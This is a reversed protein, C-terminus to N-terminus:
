KKRRAVVVVVAIAAVAVAGLIVYTLTSPGAKAPQAQKLELEAKLREVESANYQIAALRDRDAQKQNIRNGLLKLGTDLGLAAVQTWAQRKDAPITTLEEGTQNLFDPMQTQTYLIGSLDRQFARSRNMGEFIMIALDRDSVSPSVIIGNRKMAAIIAAKQGIIAQAIAKRTLDVSQQETMAM